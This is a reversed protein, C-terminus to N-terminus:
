HVGRHMISLPAGRASDAVCYPAHSNCLFMLVYSIFSVAFPQKPRCPAAGTNGLLVLDM